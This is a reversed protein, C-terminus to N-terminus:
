QNQSVTQLLDAIVDDTSIGEAQGEFNLLLRHRLAAPAVAAVDDFSVNYRGALLATIKAGLVLAQAGRPSSGYRVYQNVMASGNEGPHTAVILRSIYQSVHSPIPVQRALQQMAILHNGSAVATVVVEEKGTTRAIIETLEDASPFLVNVKFIFRDLQAEPLPYTGEQEIPNQTALVFFPAPLPYTHNAVTVTKEQMAELMASQTKPTARNIEDALILNAFVPGQQFRFQRHGDVEEMIDTGTIDAPMLDPTFQIRSFDLTLVQGLTRILMTKGLGPVGELLVHGGSLIGVLVHRVVDNQGVILKGVEAEINAALDRFEQVSLESPVLTSETM